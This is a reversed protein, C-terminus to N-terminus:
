RADDHEAGEVGSRGLGHAREFFTQRRCSVLHFALQQFLMVRREVAFRAQMEHEFVTATIPEPDAGIPRDVHVEFVFM